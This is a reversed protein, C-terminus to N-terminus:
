CSSARAARRAAAGRDGPDVIEPLFHDDNVHLGDRAERVRRGRRARHDRQLGYFDLAPCGWLAELQARMAETWPEAGFMGYRLGLARPDSGQERLSEGIHLAFSPTCALGQPGSTRSCCSRACRTARPSPCWRSAWTSPATTSASAAPSSATATPSRSAARRARAGAAALARAMVERWVDLDDRPTARRRHAQGQHGVLRPHPRREERPVAFLGFPYHERLDDKRTFPLEALDTSREVAEADVGAAALADRYFPM